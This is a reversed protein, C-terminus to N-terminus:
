LYVLSIKKVKMDVPSYNKILIDDVCNFCLNYGFHQDLYRGEDVKFLISRGDNTHYKKGCRDCQKKM